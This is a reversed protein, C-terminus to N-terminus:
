SAAARRLAAALAAAPRFRWRSSCGARGGLLFLPPSPASGGTPACPPLRPAAAEFEFLLLLLLLQQQQLRLVRRGPHAERKPERDLEPLLGDPLEAGLHLHRQWGLDGRFNNRRRIRAIMLQRLRQVRRGRQRQRALAGLASLSAAFVCQAVHQVRRRHALRYLRLYRTARILSASAQACVRVPKSCPSQSEFYQARLVCFASASLLPCGLVLLSVEPAPKNELLDM